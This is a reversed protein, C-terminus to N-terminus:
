KTFLGLPDNATGGQLPNGTTRMFSNVKKAGPGARVELSKIYLPLAAEKQAITADSDGIQPTLERVKQLAEDKNVGAGTAARLLAESMSSAAQMYNQRQSGRMMNALGGAIGMSPVNSLADNFGPRNAGPDAKVAAKMNAFANNAQVLWGAAKAQDETMPKGAGEIANGQMDRAPMVVQNRPDAFGGLSEIWQPKNSQNKEFKFRDQSLRNNAWGLANSALSDPSQSKALEGRIVSEYPSRFGIKGGLNVEELKDRAKVGDLYKMSGDEALIFARGQQDYQPATSFKPGQKVLKQQLDLAAMPNIGALAGALGQYDYGAPRAPQGASPLIGSEADGQIAPVSAQGPTAFRKYLEQMQQQQARQAQKDALSSEAEQMQLEQLKALLKQRKFQDVSGVAENLRQGFGAGDTRPAAAALLGLGFRGDDTNLADLLGM